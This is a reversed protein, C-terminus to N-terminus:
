HWTGPPWHEEKNYFGPPLKKEYNRRIRIDKKMAEREARTIAFVAFRNQSKNSMYMLWVDVDENRYKANQRTVSTNFSDYRDGDLYSLKMEGVAISRLCEAMEGIMEIKHKAM